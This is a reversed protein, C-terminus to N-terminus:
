VPVAMKYLVLLYIATSVQQYQRLSIVTIQREISTQNELSFKLLPSFYFYTLAEPPWKLM